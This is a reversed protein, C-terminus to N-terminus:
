SKIVLQPANRSAQWVAWASSTTESTYGTEKSTLDLKEQRAWQEFVEQSASLLIENEYYITM